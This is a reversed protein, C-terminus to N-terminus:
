SFQPDARVQANREHRMPSRKAGDEKNGRRPTTVPGHVNRQGLLQTLRPAMVRSLIDTGGGPALPVIIRVPKVPYKQAHATGIAGLVALVIAVSFTM